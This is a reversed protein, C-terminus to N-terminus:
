IPPGVCSDASFFPLRAPPLIWRWQTEEVIAHRTVLVRVDHPLGPVHVRIALRAAVSPVAPRGPIVVVREQWRSLIRVSVLQGPVPRRRSCRVYADFPVLAQDASSLSRYAAAYQNTTLLRAIRALFTPAPQSVLSTAILSVALSHSGFM